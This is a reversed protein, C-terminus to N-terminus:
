KKGGKKAIRAQEMAQNQAKEVAENWEDVKTLKTDCVTVTPVRVDLADIPAYGFLKDNVAERANDHFFLAAAFAEEATNFELHVGNTADLTYRKM